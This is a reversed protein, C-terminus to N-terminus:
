KGTHNIASLCKSIGTNQQNNKENISIPQEKSDGRNSNLVTQSVSNSMIIKKRNRNEHTGRM